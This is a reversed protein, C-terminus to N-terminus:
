PLKARACNPTGPAAVSYCFQIEGTNQDLQWFDGTFGTNPTSINIPQVTVVHPGNLATGVFATAFCQLSIQTQQYSLATCHYMKSDKRSLVAADWRYHNGGQQLSLYGPLLDYNVQAKAATPMIFGAVLLGCFSALARMTINGDVPVRQDNSDENQRILLTASSM